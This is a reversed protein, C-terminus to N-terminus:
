AHCWRRVQLTLVLPATVKLEKDVLRLNEAYGSMSLTKDQSSLNTNMGLIISKEKGNINTGDKLATPFQFLLQQTISCLSSFLQLTAIDRATIVADYWGPNGQRWNLLM